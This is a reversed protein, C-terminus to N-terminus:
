ARGCLRMDAGGTFADYIRDMTGVWFVPAFCTKVLDVADSHTHCTAGPAPPSIHKAAAPNKPQNSPHLRCAFLLLLPSGYDSM